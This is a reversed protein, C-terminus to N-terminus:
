PMRSPGLGMMVAADIAVRHQTIRRRWGTCLCRGAMPRHRPGARGARFGDCDGEGAFSAVGVGDVLAYRQDGAVLKVTGLNFEVAQSAFEASLQRGVMADLAAPMSRHRGDMRRSRQSRSKRAKWAARQPTMRRRIAFRCGHWAARSGSSGPGACNCTASASSAVTSVTSSSSSIAEPSVRVCHNSSRQPPSM